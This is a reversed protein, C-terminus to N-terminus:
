SFSSRVVQNIIEPPLNIYCKNDLDQKKGPEENGFLTRSCPVGHKNINKALYRGKNGYLMVTPNLILCSDDQKGCIYKDYKPDELEPIEFVKHVPCYNEKKPKNVLVFLFILLLILIVIM